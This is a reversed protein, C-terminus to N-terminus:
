KEEIIKGDKLILMRQNSSGRFPLSLDKKDEEFRGDILVDTDKLINKYLISNYNMIEEYTSGTYIWVSKKHVKTRKILDYTIIANSYQNDFTEKTGDDLTGLPEGGLITIGDILPNSLAEEIKIIVKSYKLKGSNYKWADKNFCGKCHYPCGALWVAVRIGEGNVIDDYKVSYICSM